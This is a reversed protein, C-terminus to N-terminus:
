EIKSVPIYWTPKMAEFDTRVNNTLHPDSDFVVPIGAEHQFVVWHWFPKGHEVHYKIALLAPNPMQEWQEFLIEHASTAYGFQSLLNRIYVTDSYLAEDEAYIRMSNAQTKVTAYSVGVINAVAAIGCGTTEEQVIIM